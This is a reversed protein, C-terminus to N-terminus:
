KKYKYFVCNTCPTQQICQAFFDYTCFGHGLDVHSRSENEPTLDDSTTTPEKLQELQRKDASIQNAMDYANRLERENVGTYFRLATASLHGLWNQLDSDAMPAPANSLEYALTHRARHSTIKGFVDELPIGAKRCLIPIIVQNLYSNKVQKGKWVFLFDVAESKKYDWHKPVLPRSKEWLEIMDGVLKPVPKSFSLGSKGKPVTLSCITSTLPSDREHEEWAPRTCGVQLRHIEDSRLGTYLWVIAMARIMALPYWSSPANNSPTGLRPLDKETLSLGAERLKAWYDPAIPRPNYRQRHSVGRPTALYRDPNFSIPFWEYDHCDHFFTRVSDLLKEQYSAKIPYIRTPTSNTRPHLWQGKNMRVVAAVFAIATSRTWHQPGSAEPYKATSWRAAKAIATRKQALAKGAYTTTDSWAQIITAWEDSISDNIGITNIKNKVSIPLYNNIIGINYLIESLTIYRTKLNSNIATKYLKELTSLTLQELTPNRNALLASCTDVSLTRLNSRGIRKSESALTDLAKEVTIGGFINQAAIIPRYDTVLQYIQIEGLLYACAMVCHRYQVGSIHQVKEFASHVSKFEERTKGVIEVWITENWAWLSTQRRSMEHLLLSICAYQSSIGAKPYGYYQLAAKIPQILRHLRQETKIKFEKSDKGWYSHAKWSTLATKEVSSLTFNRDCAPAQFPWNRVSLQRSKKNSTSHKTM